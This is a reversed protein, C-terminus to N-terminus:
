RGGKRRRRSKRKATREGVKKNETRRSGTGGASSQRSGNNLTASSPVSQTHKAGFGPPAVATTRAGPAAHANVHSFESGAQATRGVGSRSTPIGNVAAPAGTGVGGTHYPGSNYKPVGIPESQSNLSGLMSTPTGVAPPSHRPQASGPMGMFGMGGSVPAPGSLPLLDAFGVNQSSTAAMNRLLDFVGGGSAELSAGPQAAGHQNWPSPSVGSQPAAPTSIGPMGSGWSGTAAASNSARNPISSGLNPAAHHLPPYADQLTASTRNTSVHAIAPDLDALSVAQISQQPM